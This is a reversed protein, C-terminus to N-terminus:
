DSTYLLCRTCLDHEEDLRRPEPDELLDGSGLHHRSRPPRVRYHGVGEGHDMHSEYRSRKWAEPRMCPVTTGSPWRVTSGNKITPGPSVTKVTFYYPRPGQKRWSREIAFSPQVSSRDRICM